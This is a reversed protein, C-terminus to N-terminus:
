VRPPLARLQPPANPMLERLGSGAAAGRLWEEAVAAMVEPTPLSLFTIDSNAAVDEPSKGAHAGAEVQTALRAPDLDFATVSRGDAVLNACMGGEINGLGIFGIRLAETDRTEGMRVAYSM